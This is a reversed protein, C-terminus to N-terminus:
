ECYIYAANFENSWEVGAIEGGEPGGIRVEDNGCLESLEDILEEITM